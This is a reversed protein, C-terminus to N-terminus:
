KRRIFKNETFNLDRVQEKPGLNEYADLKYDIRELFLDRTSEIDSVGYFDTM